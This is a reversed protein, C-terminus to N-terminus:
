TRYHKRSETHPFKSKGITAAPPSTARTKVHKHQKVWKRGICDARPPQGGVHHAQKPTPFINRINETLTQAPHQQHATTKKTGTRGPAGQQRSHATERKQPAYAPLVIPISKLCIQRFNGLGPLSSATRQREALAGHVSTPRRTKKPLNQRRRLPRRRIHVTACTSFNIRPLTEVFQDELM